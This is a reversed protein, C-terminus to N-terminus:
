GAVTAMMLVLSKKWFNGQVSLMSKKPWVEDLLAIHRWSGPLSLNSVARM